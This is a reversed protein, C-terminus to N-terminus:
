FVCPLARLQEMLTRGLRRHGEDNPHLLDTEANNFYQGHAPVVPLLGSLANIDIVPVSWVRGAEVVAEVYDSFWEGIRNQVYESPQVNKDGVQFQALFTVDSTQNAAAKRFAKLAKARSAGFRSAAVPNQVRSLARKGPNVGTANGNFKVELKFSKRLSVSNGRKVYLPVRIESIWLGDRLIPTSIRVSEFQVGTSGDPGVKCLPKGLPVMKLDSVSVTPKEKTPLAVRYYRYPVANGDMYAANEPVFQAGYDNLSDCAHVSSEIVLDELVFRSRSDELVKPGGALAAAPLM